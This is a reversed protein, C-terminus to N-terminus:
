VCHSSWRSGVGVEVGHGMRPVPGLASASTLVALVVHLVHAAKGAPPAAVEAARRRRWVRGLQAAVVTPLAPVARCLAHALLRLHHAAFPDRRAMCRLRLVVVLLLLLLITAVAISVAAAAAAVASVGAIGSHLALPVITAAAATVPSPPLGIM